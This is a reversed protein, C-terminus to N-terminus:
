YTIKVSFITLSNNNESSGVQGLAVDKFTEDSKLNSVFQAIALENSAIGKIQLSSEQYNFSQLSVGDPIKSVINSLNDSAKTNEALDKFITLRKQTDRFDKEFDEQAKIQATKTRLLDDLDSNQADLWFRSLFASMVVMETVIVIFRFTTMAWRLIRGVTSGEFEQQPLLNIGKNKKAPM